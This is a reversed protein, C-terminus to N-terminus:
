YNKANALYEKLAFHAKLNQRTVLPRKIFYECKDFSVLVYCHEPENFAGFAIRLLIENDNKIFLEEIHLFYDDFKQTFNRFRSKLVEINYGSQFDLRDPMVLDDSLQECTFIVDFISKQQRRWRDEYKSSIALNHNKYIQIKASSLDMLNEVCFDAYARSDTRLEFSGNPKLIRNAEGIFAVSVVRRHPADDWPVPFHLFIREVSNSDILSLLLRADTNILVINELKRARALKAVQEISPKYVEIGIILVNRNQEAQYLLHRGSGFGIEIFIREWKKSKLIELLEGVSKSASKQATLHTKKIAMSESIVGVCNSQKFEILAKQLLGIKAPKTLKEGKIVYSKEDRKKILLFFEEDYVKTLLLDYNRGTASWAFKVDASNSSYPASKLSSAIFNPM